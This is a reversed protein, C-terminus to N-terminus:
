AAECSSKIAALDEASYKVYLKRIGSPSTRTIEPEEPAASPERTARM